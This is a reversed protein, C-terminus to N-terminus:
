PYSPSIPMAFPMSTTDAIAVEYTQELYSARAAIPESVSINVDLGASKMGSIIAEAMVGGGIFSVNM